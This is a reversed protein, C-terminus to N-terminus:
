RRDSLNITKETSGDDVVLIGTQTVQAVVSELARLPTARNFRHGRQRCCSTDNSSHSCNLIWDAPTM